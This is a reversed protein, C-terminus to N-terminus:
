VLRAQLVGGRDVGQRRRRDVLGDPLQLDVVDLPREVLLQRQRRRAAGHEADVREAHGVVHLVEDLDDGVRRDGLVAELPAPDDVVEVVLAIRPLCHVGRRQEVLAPVAEVHQADAARRGAELVVLVGDALDGRRPLDYSSPDPGYVLSLLAAILMVRGGGGGGSCATWSGAGSSRSGFVRRGIINPSRTFTSTSIASKMASDAAYRCEFIGIM